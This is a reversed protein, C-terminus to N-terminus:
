FLGMAQGLTVAGSRSRGERGAGPCPTPSGADRAKAEGHGLLHDLGVARVTIVLEPFDLGPAWPKKLFPLALLASSGHSLCRCGWSAVALAPGLLSASCGWAALSSGQPLLVSPDGEQLRRGRGRCTEGTVGQAPAPAPAPLVDQCVRRPSISSPAMWSEKLRLVPQAAPIASGHRDTGTWGAAQSGALGTGERGPQNQSHAGECCTGPDGRRRTHGHGRSPDLISEANITINPNRMAKGFLLLFFLASGLAPHAGSMGQRQGCM